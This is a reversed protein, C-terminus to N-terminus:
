YGFDFERDVAVLTPDSSATVLVDYWSDGDEHGVGTFPRINDDAWDDLDDAVDDEDPAPLVVDIFSTHEDAYLEYKNDIELTLVITRDAYLWVLAGDETPHPGVWGNDTLVGANRESIEFVKDDVHLRIKTMTDSM